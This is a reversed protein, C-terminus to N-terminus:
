LPLKSSEKLIREKAIKCYEESIEIGIWRRKLRECALATTGSGLFPDLVLDNGFSWYKMIWEILAEPKQTPHYHKFSVSHVLYDPSQGLEWNFHHGSGKNKTTVLFFELGNQWKIKRAQPAPNSKVWAGIHRVQFRHSEQLYNGILGLKLKEYFLVLVGQSKLLKVFNDIFDQWEIGGFDWEGFNLKIPQSIGFKGNNRIIDAGKKSINYPPDTLVLDVSEKPFGKMVELCDGCYLIGNGTQYYIGEKPFEDKWM